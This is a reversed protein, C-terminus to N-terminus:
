RAGPQLQSLRLSFGSLPRIYLHSYFVVTLRGFMEVQGAQLKSRDQLFRYCQAHAIRKAQSPLYIIFRHGVRQSLSALDKALYLLVVFPLVRRPNGDRVLFADYRYFTYFQRAPVDFYSTRSIGTFLPPRHRSSSGATYISVWLFTDM